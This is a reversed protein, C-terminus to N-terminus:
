KRQFKLNTIPGCLEGDIYDYREAKFPSFTILGEKQLKWRQFTASILFLESPKSRMRGADQPKKKDYDPDRESGRDANRYFIHPCAKLSYRACEEHMGPDSVVRNHLGMPGTIYWFVESKIKGGCVWCKSYAVCIMQKRGDSYRFDPKGDVMPTFYPIPYGREDTALDKMREPLPPLNKM